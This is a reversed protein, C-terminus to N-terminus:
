VRSNLRISHFVKYHLNEFETEILNLSQSNPFGEPYLRKMWFIIDCRTPHTDRSEFVVEGWLMPFFNAASINSLFEGWLGSFFHSLHMRMGIGNLGWGTFHNFHLPKRFPRFLM